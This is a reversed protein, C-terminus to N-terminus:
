TTGEQGVVLVSSADSALFKMSKNQNSARVNWM